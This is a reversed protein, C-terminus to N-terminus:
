SGLLRAVADTINWAAAAVTVVTAWKAIRYAKRTKLYLLEIGQALEVPNGSMQM